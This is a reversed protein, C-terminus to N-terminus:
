NGARGQLRGAILRREQGHGAAWAKGKAIGIRIARGEDVGERLLANAIEIAKARALPALHRMSAPYRDSTWPMANEGSAAM